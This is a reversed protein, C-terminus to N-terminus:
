LRDRIGLSPFSKFYRFHIRIIPTIKATTEAYRAILTQAVSYVKRIGFVNASTENAPNIAYAINRNLLQKGAVSSALVLLNLDNM